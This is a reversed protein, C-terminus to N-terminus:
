CRPKTLTRLRNDTAFALHGVALQPLNEPLEVVVKVSLLAGSEIHDLQNLPAFSYELALGHDFSLANAADREGALGFENPEVLDLLYSSHTPERLRVAHITRRKVAAGVDQTGCSIDHLV